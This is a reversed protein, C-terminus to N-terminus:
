IRIWSFNPTIWDAGSSCYSYNNCPLAKIAPKQSLNPKIIFTNSWRTGHIIRRIWFIMVANSTEVIADSTLAIKWRIASFTFGPEKKLCGTWLWFAHIETRWSKVRISFYSLTYCARAITLGTSFKSSTIFAFILKEPVRNICSTYGITRITVVSINVLSWTLQTM